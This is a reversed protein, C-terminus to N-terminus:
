LGGRRYTRPREKWSMLEDLGVLLYENDEPCVSFFRNDNSDYSEMNGHTHGHVSVKGRLETPHIPYHSVWMGKYGTCGYFEFWDPAMAMLERTRKNNVHQFDHNGLVWKVQCKAESYLRLVAEETFAIDGLLWLTARKQKLINFGLFYEDNEEPASFWEHRFKHINRHGLHWDSSFMVTM